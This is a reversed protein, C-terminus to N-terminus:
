AKSESEEKIPLPEGKTEKSLAYITNIMMLILIILFPFAAVMSSNRLAQMGGVWLFLLANISIYAGWFGRIGLSPEAMKAGSSMVGMVYTGSNVSTIILTLSMFLAVVISLTSIPLESLMIFLSYDSQSVMSEAIEPTIKGTLAYEIATGGFFAFWVFCLVTPAFLCSLIFERITRGKSIDALFGGVFPAFALWWAFYMVTWGGVWNWGMKAAVVGEADTFLSTAVLQNFYRGVAELMLNINFVRPGVILMFFILVYVLWMNLDSIYKLGKAVGKMASITAVTGVFMIVVGVLFLSNEIGYQRSFGASFQTAAFGLSTAIGCLTAVLAFIDIIKAMKGNLRERGLMPEFCSSIRNPLGRRFKFYAIALGSTVYLAWPHVGWHVYTLRLGDPSAAPTGNEFFPSNLFHSMPENVGFYLLGVGIGAGFLMGIWSVFSYEPKDDPKGLKIKGTPGLALILLAVLFFTCGLLYVWGLKNFTFSLTASIASEATTPVIIIFLFLALYILATGGFITYDVRSTSDKM